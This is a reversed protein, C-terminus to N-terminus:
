VSSNWRFILGRPAIRIPPNPNLRASFTISHTTGLAFRMDLNHLFRVKSLGVKDGEGQM